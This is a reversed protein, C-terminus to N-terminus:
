VAHTIFMGSIIQNEKWLKVVPISAVLSSGSSSLVVSVSLEYELGNVMVSSTSNSVLAVQEGM